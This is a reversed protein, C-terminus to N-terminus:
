GFQSLPVILFDNWIFQITSNEGALNNKDLQLLKICIIHM